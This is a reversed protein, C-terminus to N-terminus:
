IKKNLSFGIRTSGTTVLDPDTEDDEVFCRAVIGTRSPYTFRFYTIEVNLAKLLVPSSFFDDREQWIVDV